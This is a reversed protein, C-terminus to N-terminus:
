TPFSYKSFDQPKKGDSNEISHLIALQAVHPDPLLLPTIDEVSLLSPSASVYNEIM